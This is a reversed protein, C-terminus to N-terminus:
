ETETAMACLVAITTITTHTSTNRTSPAQRVRVISAQSGAAGGGGRLRGAAAGSGGRWRGPAEWGCDQLRGAAPRSGGRRGSGADPLRGISRWCAIGREM